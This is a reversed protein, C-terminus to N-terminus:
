FPFSDFVDGATRGIALYSNSNNHNPLLADLYLM